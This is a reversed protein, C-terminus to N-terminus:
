RDANWILTTILWRGRDKKFLMVFKGSQDESTGAVTGRTGIMRGRIAGMTGMIREEDVEFHATLRM